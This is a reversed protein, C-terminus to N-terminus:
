KDCSRKNHCSLRRCAEFKFWRSWHFCFGSLRSESYTRSGTFLWRWITWEETLHQINLCIFMVCDITTWPSIIVHPKVASIYIINFQWIIERGIISTTGRIFLTVFGLTTQTVTTPKLHLITPAIVPHYLTRLTLLLGQTRAVIKWRNCKCMWHFARTSGCSKM